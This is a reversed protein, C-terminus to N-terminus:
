ARGKEVRRVENMPPQTLPWGRSGVAKNLAIPRQNARNLEPLIHQPQSRWAGRAGSRFARKSGKRPYPLQRSTKLIPARDWIPEIGSTPQLDQALTQRLPDGAGAVDKADYRKVGAAM